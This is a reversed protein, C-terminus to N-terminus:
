PRWQNARQNQEALRATEAIRKARTADTKAHAIWELIARKASRPFAAFYASAAPSAALAEALDPPIELNEVADLAGWSGDAKAAEIKALGAPHILGAARLREVHQKNLRSWGTGPKRPAYWRMSREDDLTNSKSDIWGFCLAEEVTEVYEVRPKGTAKKYTILWIGQTRKHNQELWARWEARTLPHFSNEPKNEAANLATEIEAIAQETTRFLIAHIGLQQAAEVNAEVDDLFLMEAPQVNLEECALQFIRREPKRIGVEHSYIILDCLDGFQYRAHEQERAGVFSNSLIATRYRPRLNAFYGTLQTNPSGLYEDWVDRMLAAVQSADIGLIEGARREVDAYSITGLSGAEWLDGLREDLEGPKLSLRTEWREIWGTPTVIELVGGVDFVVARIPM